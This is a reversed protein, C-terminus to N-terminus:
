VQGDYVMESLQTKTTGNQVLIKSQDDTEGQKLEKALAIGQLIETEGPPIAQFADSKVEVSVVYSGFDFNYRTFPFAAEKIGIEIKEIVFKLMSLDPAEGALELAVFIRGALNGSLYRNDNM